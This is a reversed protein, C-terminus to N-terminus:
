YDESVSRRDTAVARVLAVFRGAARPVSLIDAIGALDSGSLQQAEILAGHLSNADGPIYALGYRRALTSAGAHESVVCPRGELVAENFVFGWPERASAIVAVDARAYARKMEVAQLRGAGIVRVPGHRRRYRETEGVILVEIRRPARDAIAALDDLLQAAGKRPDGGGVLLLRLVPHGDPRGRGPEPLDGAIPLRVQGGIWYSVKDVAIGQARAWDLSMRSYFIMGRCRRAAFLRVRDILRRLRGTPGPEEVDGIWFILRVRRLRAIGLCLVQVLTLDRSLTCVIVDYRHTVLHRFTRIPLSMRNGSKPLVLAPDNAEIVSGAAAPQWGIARRKAEPRSVHLFTVGTSGSQRAIEAFLAERYPTFYNNIVIAKM